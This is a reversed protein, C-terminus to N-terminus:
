SHVESFLLLFKLIEWGGVLSNGFPIEGKGRFVLLAGFYDKECATEWDWIGAPILGGWFNM